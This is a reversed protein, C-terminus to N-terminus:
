ANARLCSPSHFGWRMAPQKESIMESMNTTTKQSFVWSCPVSKGWTCKPGLEYSVRQGPKQRKPEAENHVEGRTKPRAVSILHMEDYGLGM